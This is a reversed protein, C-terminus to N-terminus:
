HKVKSCLIWHLSPKNYKVFSSSLIHYDPHQHYPIFSDNTPLCHLTLHDVKPLCGRQSEHNGQVWVVNLFLTIACFFMKLGFYFNFNLPNQSMHFYCLSCLLTFFLLIQQRKIGNVFCHTKLENLIRYMIWIQERHYDWVLFQCILYIPLFVKAQLTEPHWKKSHIKRLTLINFQSVFIMSIKLLSILSYTHPERLCLQSLLISVYSKVFITTLYIPCLSSFCMSGIM